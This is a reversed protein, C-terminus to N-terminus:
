MNTLFYENKGRKSNYFHKPTVAGFFFFFFFFFLMYKSLIYIYSYLIHFYIYIYLFYLHFIRCFCLIFKSTTYYKNNNGVGSICQINAWPKVEIGRCNHDEGPYLLWVHYQPCKEELLPPQTPDIQNNNEDIWAPCKAYHSIFVDFTDSLLCLCHTCQGQMNESLRGLNLNLVAFVSFYWIGRVIYTYTSSAATLPIAGLATQPHLCILSNRLHFYCRYSNAPLQVRLVCPRSSFAFSLLISTFGCSHQMTIMCALFHTCVITGYISEYAVAYM